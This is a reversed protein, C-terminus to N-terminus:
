AGPAAGVPLAIIKSRFVRLSLYYLSQGQEREMRGLLIWYMGQGLAISLGIAPGGYSHHIWRRLGLLILGLLLATGVAWAASFRAVERRSAPRVELQAKIVNDFVRSLARRAMLAYVVPGVVLAIAAAILSGWEAYALAVVLLVCSATGIGLGQALYMARLPYVTKPAMGRGGFEACAGVASFHRVGSLCASTTSVM